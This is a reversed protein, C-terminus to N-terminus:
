KNPETIVLEGSGLELSMNDGVKDKLKLRELISELCDRQSVVLSQFLLQQNNALAILNSMKDIEQKTLQYRKEKM